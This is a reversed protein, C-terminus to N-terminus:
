FQPTASVLKVQDGVLQFQEVGSSTDPWLIVKQSWTQDSDLSIFMGSRSIKLLSGGQGWSDSLLLLDGLTTDRLWNRPWQEKKLRQVTEFTLQVRAKM